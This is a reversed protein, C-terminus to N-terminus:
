YKSLEKILSEDGQHERINAKLKSFFQQKLRFYINYIEGRIKISFDRFDGHNRHTNNTFFFQNNIVFDIIAQYTKDDTIIFKYRINLIAEKQENTLPKKSNLDSKLDDEYCKLNIRKTSIVLTKIPKEEMGTHKIEIFDTMASEKKPSASFPLLLILFYLLTKM